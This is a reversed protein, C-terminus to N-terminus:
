LAFHMSWKFVFHPLATPKERQPTYVSPSQNLHASNETLQQMLADHALGSLTLHQATRMNSRSGRRFGVWSSFRNGMGCVRERSPDGQGAAPAGPGDEAPSRVPERDQMPLIVLLGQKGLSMMTEAQQGLM